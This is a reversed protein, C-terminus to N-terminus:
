LGMVARMFGVFPEALLGILLGAVSAGMISNWFTERGSDDDGMLKHVVGLTLGLGGASIVLAKLAIIVPSWVEQYSSGSQAWDGGAQLLALCVAEPLTAGLM